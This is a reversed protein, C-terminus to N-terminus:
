TWAELPMEGASISLATWVPRVEHCSILSRETGEKMGDVALSAHM